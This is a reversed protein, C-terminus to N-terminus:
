FRPVPPRRDMVKALVVGGRHLVNLLRECALRAMETRQGPEAHDELLEALLLARQGHEAPREVDIRMHLLDGVEHLRQALLDLAPVDSRPTVRRGRMSRIEKTEM